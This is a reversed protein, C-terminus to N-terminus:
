NKQAQYYLVSANEERLIQNSVRKIDATTVQEIKKAEANVLNADGSLKAFALNMARNIVEVEGFELISEAQNKVKGLEEDLAGDRRLAQIVNEVEEEATKLTVGDKVRGSVVLLGPDVSGMAFSSISTFIEKEKVLKQYLRSSPGRGLLDTLLDIAYYDPDFRGPMHWAKYFADAPVHAKVEMSRKQNQQPEQPLRRPKKGPQIPGFWKESLNKVQAVTV